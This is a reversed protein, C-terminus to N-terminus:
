IGSGLQNLTSILFYFDAQGIRDLEREFADTVTAPDLGAMHALFHYQEHKEMRHLQPHKQIAQNLLARRTQAVLVEKHNNRWLFWGGAEVHELLRRRSLTTEPIVPGFRVGLAWLSCVLIIAAVTVAMWAKEWLVRFISPMETLYQIWVKSDPEDHVLLRHAFRAHDYQLIRKNTMFRMDTFVSVTGDGIELSIFQTGTENAATYNILHEYSTTLYFRDHFLVELTQKDRTEIRAIRDEDRFSTFLSYPNRSVSPKCEGGESTKQGSASAEQEAKGSEGDSAAKDSKNEEATEKETTTKESESQSSEVEFIDEEFDDDLYDPNLHLTVGFEDLLADSTSEDDLYEHGSSAAIILHGGQIVWEVIDDIREEGLLSGPLSLILTDKSSPLPDLSSMRNITEVPKNLEELYRQLARYPNLRLEPRFGVYERTEVQEYNESFWYYWFGTAAVLLVIVLLIIRNSKM